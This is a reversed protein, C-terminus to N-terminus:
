CTYNQHVTHSSRFQLSLARVEAGPTLYGNRNTQKDPTVRIFTLLRTGPTPTPRTDEANWMTVTTPQMRFTQDRCFQSTQFIYVCKFMKTRSMYFLAMDPM